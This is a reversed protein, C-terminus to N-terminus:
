TIRGPAAQDAADGRRLAGQDLRQGGAIWLAVGDVVLARPVVGKGVGHPERVLSM